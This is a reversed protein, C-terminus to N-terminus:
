SPSLATGVALEGSLRSDCPVTFGLSLELHDQTRFKSTFQEKVM